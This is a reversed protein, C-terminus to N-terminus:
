KITYQKTKLDITVVTGDSFTTRQIQFSHDLFEHKIMENYAVKKHLASVINAQNMEESLSLVENEHDDTNFHNTEKILYTPEGNLLAYLMNDAKRKDLAIPLIICEHYVLHFLPVLIGMKAVNEAKMMADNSGDDAIVLSKMAWDSCHESCPLIQKATLYEFCENREKICEYRTMRHMPNACENIQHHAVDLYSAKLYIKEAQIKEFKQKIYLKALSDCLGNQSKRDKNVSAEYGGDANQIIFRQDYSNADHNKLALLDDNSSMMDSLNKLAEGKELEKCDSLENLLVYLNEIGEDKLAQIQKMIDYDVAKSLLNINVKMQVFISKILKDVYPNKINKEKLTTFLGKEKVYQKYVKCIDNHDCDDIFQYRLVRKYKMKGLSTLWCMSLKTGCIGAEHEVMYKADWPTENIMIYGNRNQIQALFPMCAAISCLQGDFAIKDWHYEWKNPLLIGQGYPILSYGDEKNFVFPNPWRIAKIDFGNDNVPIWEFYINQTSEEIWVLTDFAFNVGKIDRYRTLIGKGVGSEYLEIKITKANSFLVSRDNNLIIEAKFENDSEWKFGNKIVTYNGQEYILKTNKVIVEM